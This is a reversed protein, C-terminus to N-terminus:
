RDTSDETQLDQKPHILKVLRNPYDTIIGNVGMAIMTKMDIEKNVTWPIVSIGKKQLEDIRRMNLLLFYPSYIDPEFGLKSIFELPEGKKEVLFAVKQNPKKQRVLRLTEMDFSQIIIRDSFDSKDVEALVLDVYEKLPPHYISDWNPRRKIEINYFPKDRGTSNAHQECAFFVDSLLPKSVKVMLQDPFRAHPRGGCNYAAIEEMTMTYINLEKAEEESVNHFGAACIEHSMWPEHSLIVDNDKSIVVDLELTNVGLELAHIMGPISNEPLLGRCGRHGQIDFKLEELVPTSCGFLLIVLCFGVYTRM